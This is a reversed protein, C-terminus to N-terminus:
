AERSAETVTALIQGHLAPNAVLISGSVVPMFIGFRDALRGAAIGAFAFGIMALTYPPSADARGSGFDAQVAPLAVVVSWMGVSGITCLLLSVVLRLWAGASETAGDTTQQM